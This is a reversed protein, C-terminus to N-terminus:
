LALMRQDTKTQLCWSVVLSIRVRPGEAGYWLRRALYQQVVNEGCEGVRGYRVFDFGSRSAREWLGLCTLWERTLPIRREWEIELSCQASAGMDSEYRRDQERMAATNPDSALVRNM